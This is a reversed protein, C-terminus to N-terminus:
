FILRTRRTSRWKLMIIISKMNISTVVVVHHRCLGGFVLALQYDFELLLTTELL